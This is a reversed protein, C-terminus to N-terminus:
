VVPQTVFDAVLDAVLGPEEHMIWHTARPVRRVTVGPVWQDLGDLCGPLLAVDDEGWIVLTPVRVILGSDEPKQEPTYSPPWPEMARYWNLGGTIVGPTSWAEMYEAREAASFADPTAAADFVARVLAANGDRTLLEEAVPTRFVDIYRSAARQAESTALERALLAPHPGNLIVLREVLDPRTIALVWAAVSGWDHGVLTVPRGPSVAAVLQVLDEVVVPVQYASVADPKDSEGYGRMDPAVVRHTRSMASMLHRWSFWGEPFGHVCLMVPGQGQEMVRLTIGSVAVRSESIDTSM